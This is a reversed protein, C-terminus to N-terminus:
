FGPPIAASPHCLCLAKFLRGMREPAALRHAADVLGRARGPATRCLAETRAFLGLATLLAGQGVPGHVAVGAARARDALTLFDVHATLDAEGPADFPDAARGGRLAQLSGGEPFGEQRSDYGYDLLLAAGGDRALRAALAGTFALADPSWEAVEGDGARMLLAEPPGDPDCGTEVLRGSDVRRERWLGDRRVWQRVPLADLFENGLLVMPGAPVTDLREHWVPELAPCVGAVAARQLARLRPSTEILHLEAAALADPAVRGILRLADAILTGRGPGAEVLRLRPTDMERWVAVAWAGLLEGFVQTLEPATVFDAFPDHRAYYAAVANQMWRDLRLPPTM